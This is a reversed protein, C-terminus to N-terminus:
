ELDFRDGWLLLALLSVLALIVFAAPILWVPLSGKATGGNHSRRAAGLGGGNKESAADCQIALNVLFDTRKARYEEHTLLGNAYATALSRLGGRESNPDNM